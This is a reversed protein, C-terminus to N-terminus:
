ERPRNDPMPNSELDVTWNYAKRNMGTYQELQTLGKMAVSMATRYKDEGVVLSRNERFGTRIEEVIGDRKISPFVRAAKIIRRYLSLTQQRSSQMRHLFEESERVPDELHRV